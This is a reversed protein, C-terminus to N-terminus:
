HTPFRTCAHSSVHLQFLWSVHAPEVGTHQFPAQWSQSGPATCHESFPTCCHLAPPLHLAGTAQTFWVHTPPAHTPTHAGSWCSQLPLVGSVHLVFPAQVFPAAHVFWVHM